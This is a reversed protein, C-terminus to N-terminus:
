LSKITFNIYLNGPLSNSHNRWSIGSLKWVLKVIFNGHFTDSEVTEMSVMRTILNVM